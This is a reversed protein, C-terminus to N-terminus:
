ECEIEEETYYLFSGKVASNPKLLFVRGSLQEPSLFASPNEIRLKDIMEDLAINPKGCDPHNPKRGVTKLRERQEKTLVIM